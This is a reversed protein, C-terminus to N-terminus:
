RTTSEVINQWKGNTRPNTCDSQSRVTAANQKIYAPQDLYITRNSRERTIRIGLIKSIGGLDKINFYEAFKAKFKHIEQMNKAAILLDDVYIGILVGTIHNRFVCPDSPIPEFGM